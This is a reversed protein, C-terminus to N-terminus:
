YIRVACLWALECWNYIMQEAQEIDDVPLVYTADDDSQEDLPMDDSCEVVSYEEFAMDGLRLTLPSNSVDISVIWDSFTQCSYWDSERPPLYYWNEYLLVGDADVVSFHTTEDAGCIFSTVMLSRTECAGGWDEIQRIEGDFGALLVGSLVLMLMVLQKVIVGGLIYLRNHDMDAWISYAYAGYFGRSDDDAEKRLIGMIGCFRGDGLFRANLVAAICCM